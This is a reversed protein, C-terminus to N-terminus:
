DDNDLSHSENVISKSHKYREQFKGLYQRNMLVSVALLAVCRFSNSWSIQLLQKLVDGLGAPEYLFRIVDTKMLDAFERVPCGGKRFLLYKTLIFEAQSRASKVRVRSTQEHRRFNSLAKTCFVVRGHYLLDGVFLWDGTLKLKKLFPRYATRFAQARILTSSMNPVTQGRLQFDLLEQFGDACFDTDWRTEKWVDHFYTSTHGVREGSSDVIWSNCYFIVAAKNTELASVATELFHPEAFDDSECVWIYSGTALSLVNEWAAFPTGTNKKNRIYRFKHQALMSNIVEDSHDQSGDDIVILEINKYTQNLISEIRQQIYQGHNYSPVVATVTPLYSM